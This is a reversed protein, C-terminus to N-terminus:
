SGIARTAEGHILVAIQVDHVLAVKGNAQCVESGALQGRDDGSSLGATTTVTVQEYQASTSPNTNTVVYGCDQTNDGPPVASPLNFACGQQAFTFDPAVL